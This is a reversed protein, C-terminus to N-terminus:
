VVKGGKVTYYKGSYYVRGNKSFDVKGNKCYWSGNSNHGIGTFNFDVKGDKCYWWGLENQYVGTASFNVKGNEIRWWGYSNNKIGTYNFNVKGNECYWWGLENQYVGTASFDVKGNVIRWWGLDNKQIGTYNFQVKGNKCYWWGYENKYVGTADFNVIGDEVRWWGLSNKVVGDYNYDVYGDLVYKWTGDNEDKILGDFDFNVKGNELYWTGNENKGFGTYDYLYDGDDFACWDGNEDQQVYPHLQKIVVSSTTGKYLNLEPYYEFGPKGIVSMYYTIGDETYTTKQVSYNSNMISGNILQIGNSTYDSDVVIAVSETSTVSLEGGYITLVGFVCIGEYQSKVDVKGDVLRMASYCCIGSPSEAAITLNGDTMIINFTEIAILDTSTLAVDGGTIYLTFVSLAYGSSEINVAAGDIYCYSLGYIGNCPYETEYQTDYYSEATTINITGGMLFVDYSDESNELDTYGMYIGHAGSNINLIGNSSSNIYLNTDITTIGNTDAPSTITSTGTLEVVLAGLGDAVIEGGNYNNLTLRQNENDYIAGAATATEVATTDVVGDVILDYDGVSLNVDVELASTNVIAFSCIVVITFVISLLKIVKKM